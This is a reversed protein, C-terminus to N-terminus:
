SNGGLLQSLANELGQSYIEAEFEISEMVMAPTAKYHFKIKGQMLNSLPNQEEKIYCEGYVLSEGIKERLYDNTSEAVRGILTNALDDPSTFMPRDLFQMAFKEIAEEIMDMTRRWAIFTMVDSKSPYATSRNGFARLGNFNITTVIGAANLQVVECDSDNPLYELNHESSVADVLKFNSPSCWYGTEMTEGTLNKDMQIILGAYSPAAWDLRKVGENNLVNLRPYYCVARYDSIGNAFAKAQEQTSGGPPETIWMGRTKRIAAVAQSAAGEKDILGPALFIKPMFGYIAQTQRILPLCTLFKGLEPDAAIARELRIQAQAAENEEASSANVIAVDAIEVSEAEKAQKASKSDSKAAESVEVESAEAVLQTTVYSVVTAREAYKYIRELSDLLTGPGLKEKAEDFSLTKIVSRETPITATGFVGAIASSVDLIPVPGSVVEVTDVGHKM